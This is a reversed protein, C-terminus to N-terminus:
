RSFRSLESENLAPQYPRFGDPQKRFRKYAWQYQSPEEELSAEVTKSLAVISELKDESYLDNPVEKFIIRFGESNRIAYGLVVVCNTKQVLSHILSMTYAPVGFFPVYLGSGQAPQQDPLIGTIEGRKLAKLVASIGRQTTPVLKAGSHERGKRVLSEMYSLKPPQYLNTTPAFEALKRGFVEWNGVHPCLVIVGRKQAIAQELIEPNDIQNIKKNLWKNSRQWIIPMELATVLTNVISDKVLKQRSNESEIFNTLRTNRRTVFHVSNNPLFSIISGVCAGVFRAFRLPMYGLLWLIIHALKALM